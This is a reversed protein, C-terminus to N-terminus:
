KEDRRRGKSLNYGLLDSFKRPIEGVSVAWPTKELTRTYTRRRDHRFLSQGMHLIFEKSLCMADATFSVPFFPQNTDIRSSPAHNPTSTVPSDIQELETVIQQNM